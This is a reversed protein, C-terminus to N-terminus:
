AGAGMEAPQPTAPLAEAANLMSAFSAHALAYGDAPDKQKRTLAADSLRLGNPYCTEIVWGREALKARLRGLLVEGSKSGPSCFAARPLPDSPGRAMLQRLIIKQGHPIELARALREAFEDIDNSQM